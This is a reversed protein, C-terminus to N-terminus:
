KFLIIRNKYEEEQMNRSSDLISHYKEKDKESLGGAIAAALFMNIDSLSVSDNHINNYDRCAIILHNKSFPNISIHSM